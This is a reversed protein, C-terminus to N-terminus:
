GAQTLNTADTIAIPLGLIKAITKLLYTKGSGTPGVLLVNSKEIEVPMDDGYKEKLHLSKCHNYIAVALKEKAVDQGIVYEDLKSKIISPKVEKLNAILNDVVEEETSELKNKRLEEINTNNVLMTISEACDTCICTNTLGEILTEKNEGCFDCKTKNM